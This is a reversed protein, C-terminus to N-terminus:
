ERIFLQNHNYLKITFVTNGAESVFSIEGNNDEINKKAIALGLGFGEIKKNRSKDVRYFRHFIKHQAEKPIGIGNDRVTITISDSTAKTKIEVQANHSNQSYKIGNEIINFLARELNTKGATLFLEKKNSNFKIIVKKKKAYPKLINVQENLLKNVDIKEKHAVNSKSLTLLGDTLSSLNTVAQSSKNMAIKLQDISATKDELAIDLNTKIITLPTKLEHSADQVFQKQNDFSKKLRASMENYSNILQGVEDESRVLIQRGAPEDISQDIESKLEKLPALFKGSVFYGIAFSFIALPFLSLISIEQFSKLDNQRAERIKEIDEVPFDRFNYTQETRIIGFQPPGPDKRIVNEFYLNLGLVLLVGFVFVILSYTITLKFRLSKTLSM